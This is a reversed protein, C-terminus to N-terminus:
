HTLSGANGHAITYTVSLAQIRRQQPQTISAPLQLESEVGLRPVEMHRPHPGLFCFFIKLNYFYSFALQWFLHLTCNSLVLSPMQPNRSKLSLFLVLILMFKIMKICIPKDQFRDSLSLQLSPLFIVGVLLPNTTMPCALTLFCEKQLLSRGESREEGGLKENRFLELM